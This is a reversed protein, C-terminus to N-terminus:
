CRCHNQWQIWTRAELISSTSKYEVLCVSVVIVSLADRSNTLSPGWRQQAHGEGSYPWVPLANQGATKFIAKM